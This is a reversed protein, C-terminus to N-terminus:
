GQEGEIAEHINFDLYPFQVLKPKPAIRPEMFVGEGKEFKRNVIKVGDGFATVYTQKESNGLVTKFPLNERLATDILSSNSQQMILFIFFGAQRGQLVIEYLLAKVKDRTQKDKTALEAALSAFEDVIFIHPLMCFNSYDADLRHKLFDKLEKKRERMENVFAELNSIIDKAETATREPALLSGIIALSSDKPDNFYFIPHFRKNLLQLILSYLCYTKGSGTQGVFLSSQLPIVTRKDLFVNYEPIRRCYKKFEDYSNFIQSFSVNSDLLEYVYYNEDATTYHTEVIYKGLASSLITDDLRSHFRISNQIRLIGKSLDKEFSM